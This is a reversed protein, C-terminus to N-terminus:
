LETQNTTKRYSAWNCEIGGGTERIRSIISPSLQAAFDQRTV